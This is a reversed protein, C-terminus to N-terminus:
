VERFREMNGDVSRDELAGAFGCVAKAGFFKAARIM